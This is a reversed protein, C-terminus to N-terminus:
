KAPKATAKTPVERLWGRRVCYMAFPTNNHAALAEQLQALTAQGGHAALAGQVLQWAAANDRQTNPRVNYPKGLTYM